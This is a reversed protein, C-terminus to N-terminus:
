GGIRAPNGTPKPPSWPKPQPALTGDPRRPPEPTDSTVGIFSVLQAKSVRDNYLKQWADREACLKAITRDKSDADIKLGAIVNDIQTCLGLTDPLPICQPACHLFLRRLYQYAESSQEESNHEDVKGALDRSYSELEAVRGELSKIVMNSVLPNNGPALAAMVRYIDAADRYAAGCRMASQGADFMEATVPIEPQASPCAPPTFRSTVTVGGTDTGYAWGPGPEAGEGAITAFDKWSIPAMGPISPPGFGPPGTIGRWPDAPQETLSAVGLTEYAAEIDEHTMVVEMIAGLCAVSEIM